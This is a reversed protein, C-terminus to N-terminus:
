DTKEYGGEELSGRSPAQGGHGGVETKDPARRTDGRGILNDEGVAAVGEGKAHEEERVTGDGGVVEAEPEPEPGPEASSSGRTSGTEDESANPVEEVGPKTTARVVQDGEAAPRIGQM